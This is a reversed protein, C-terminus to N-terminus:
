ASRLNKEPASIDNIQYIDNQELPMRQNGDLTASYDVEVVVVTEEHGASAITEGFPNVVTSHGWITYSGASDRSPSCTAIFMQNDAARAKQVLEWLLEGTSMNFAGPYCIIQAGKAKYLMALEPFRIDHCIGIGIRGVETDVITYRDGAGFTDSEKFSFEGPIDIDFLHLKRHKAKLKGDPGLICCTNYLRDNEREPMSGGVIIINHFAAAEALLSFSEGVEGDRDQFEEAFNDFYKISYPCNWMEPLVILKAGQLAAVKIANRAHLLNLNKNTTVTLQCLGLKFKSM